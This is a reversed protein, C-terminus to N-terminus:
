KLIWRNIKLQFRSSSQQLMYERGDKVAGSTPLVGVSDCEPGGGDDVRLRQVRDVADVM